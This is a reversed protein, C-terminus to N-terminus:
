HKLIEISSGKDSAKIKVYGGIPFTIQPYTHGFNVEAIVPISALEKKSKIIQFLKEHSMKSAKQFRGIVIGKVKNFGKQHTLSQLDRDFTAPHSEFDDELFIVKDELSPMFETGHLLNFTCLNGGIIIGEAQGPQIARYEQNPIFVREDQNLYWEDDSWATSPTVFFSEESFLCRKFYDLSYDFGKLMGFSSFHPGSYTVVGTKSFISNSLATIDSFGCFIKPNNMILSYDLYSLLQNCNFGGIVTLIASVNKDQFAEHLDALRSEISSSVFLDSEEVHAGFSVILGLEELRIKALQRDKSSIISLSRSPAIVRVQDGAKLKKPFIQKM